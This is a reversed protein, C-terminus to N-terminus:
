MKSDLCWIVSEAGMRPVFFDGAIPIQSEHVIFLWARTFLKELEDAYVRECSFIERDIIGAATDAMLAYSKPSSPATPREAM